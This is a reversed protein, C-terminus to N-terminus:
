PTVENPANPGVGEKGPAAIADAVDGGQGGLQEHLRIIRTRVERALSERGDPAFPSVDIPEGIAVRVSGPTIRWSNRPMIRDTGVIAVPCVAAGSKLALAFPGKKFPLIRGTSRTGEPYVIISTGRRIKQVADDLSAIARARNSRDIFLHGAIWIYWGLVPVWKLQSKALFRINVPIAHFLVPIDLTSHHNSVYITPRQPDANERGQVELAVKGAWFLGPAWINRAIWISTDTSWTLLMALCAVVFLVTLWVAHFAIYFLARLM